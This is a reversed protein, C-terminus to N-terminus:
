AVTLVLAQTVVVKAKGKGFIATITLHYVGISKKAKPTGTITATGNHNKVFALGRPLKGTKKIVPTPSGSTTITFASFVGANASVNPDSTIADGPPAGVLVCENSDLNSAGTNDTTAAYTSSGSYVVSFCWTGVSTPVFTSSAAAATDGAGAVLAETAEPAGSGPCPGVTPTLATGTHCVYFTVIGTPSGGIVNGGVTVLDTVSGSAGLTVDASSIFTATTSPSPNVLACEHSDLNTSSTNDASGTYTASGGYVASFCWTGTAPPIFTGSSASATNNSGSTLVVTALHDNITAACSGPTLTDTTGTQCVYFTV